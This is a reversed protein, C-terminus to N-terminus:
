EKALANIAALKDEYKHLAQETELKIAMTAQMLKTLDLKQKAVESERYKLATEFKQLNSEKYELTVRLARLDSTVAVASAEAEAAYKDAEAKIAEAAKHSKYEAAQVRQERGQVKNKYEVLDGIENNHGIQSNLSEQFSLLKEMREKYLKSSAVLDILASPKDVVAISPLKNM